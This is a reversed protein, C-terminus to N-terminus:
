SPRYLVLSTNAVRVLPYEHSLKNLYRTVDPWVLYDQWIIMGGPSRMRFAEHSDHAVYEYQHSGDIFVLDVQGYYPSFDLQASDGYLQMVRRRLEEPLKVIKEGITAKQVYLAEGPALPHRLHRVDEQRLDVTILRAEPETNRALSAMVLGRFTGIELASRIRQHRAIACLLYLEAM